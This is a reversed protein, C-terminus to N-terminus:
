KFLQFLWEILYDPWSVWSPFEGTLLLWPLSALLMLPGVVFMMLLM